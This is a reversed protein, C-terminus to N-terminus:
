DSSSGRNNGREVARISWTVLNRSDFAIVAVYIYIQLEWELVM